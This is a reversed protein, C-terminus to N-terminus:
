FGSSLTGKREPYKTSDVLEAVHPGSVLVPPEVRSGAPQVAASQVSAGSNSKSDQTKGWQDIPWPTVIHPSGTGDARSLVVFDGRIEYRYGFDSLGSLRFQERVHYAEDMIEILGDVHHKNRVFVALRPRYKELMTTVYDPPRMSTNENVGQNKVPKVDATGAARVVTAAANSASLKNPASQNTQAVPAASHSGFIQYLFYFSAVGVLVFFPIVRTFLASRFISARKDQLNSKNNVGDVHSKYIGYYKIDYKEVGSQIKSFSKPGSRENMVWQYRNEQGLAALKKFYILRQVRDRWFAHINKYAQGCLVVDIGRQGHQTIFEIQKPNLKCMSPHFDQVEDFIVLCDNVAYEHIDTSKEWPVSILTKEVVELEMELIEAIKSHDIGKINTVVVRGNKIAPLAMKVMAEWTKGARPLGEHFIIM